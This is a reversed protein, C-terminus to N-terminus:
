NELERNIYDLVDEGTCRRGMLWQQINKFADKWGGEIFKKNDGDRCLYEYHMGNHFVKYKEKVWYKEFEKM